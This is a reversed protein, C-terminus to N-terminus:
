PLIRISKYGHEQNTAMKCLVCCPMVTLAHGKQISLIATDKNNHVRNVYKSNLALTTVTINLIFFRQIFHRQLYYNNATINATSLYNATGLSTGTLQNLTNGCIVTFIKSQWLLALCVFLLILYVLTAWTQLLEEELNFLPFHCNM